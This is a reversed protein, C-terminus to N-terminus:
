LGSTNEKNREREKEEDMIKKNNVANQLEDLKEEYGNAFYALTIYTNKKDVLLRVGNNYSDKWIEWRHYGDEQSTHEQYLGDLKTSLDKFIAGIDEYDNKSIVYWGMYLLASEDNEEIYGDDNYNYLYCAYTDYAKYGAVDIGTYRQRIGGGEVRDKASTVNSYDTGSLRYIDHWPGNWPDKKANGICITKETEAKTSYWPVGRFVISGEEVTPLMSNNENEKDNNNNESYYNSKEISKLIIEAAETYDDCPGNELFMLIYCGDTRQVVDGYVDVLYNNINFTVCSRYEPLPEKSYNDITLIYSPRDELVDEWLGDLMSAYMENLATRYSQSNLDINESYGMIIEVDQEEPIHIHTCNDKNEEASEYTWSGPIQFEFDLMKVKQRSEDDIKAKERYYKQLVNDEYFGSYQFEDNKYYSANGDVDGNSFTGIIKDGDEYEITGEGTMKGNDWEGSYFWKLGEENETSFTGKGDPKGDKIDGNYTGKREGFSFSLTMEVNEAHNDAHTDNSSCGVSFSMLGTVIVISLWGPKKM